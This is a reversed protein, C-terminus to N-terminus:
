LTADGTTEDLSEDLWQYFDLQIYLDLESEDNLVEFDDFLALTSNLDKTPMIQLTVVFGLFGALAMGATTATIWKLSSPPLYFHSKKQLLATQRAEQLRRLVSEDLTDAEQDLAQRIKGKFARNAKEAAKNM